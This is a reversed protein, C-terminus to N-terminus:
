STRVIIKFMISYMHRYPLIYKYYFAENQPQLLLSWFDSLFTFLGGTPHRFLGPRQCVEPGLTENFTRYGGPGFKEWLGLDWNNSNGGNGGGGALKGLV